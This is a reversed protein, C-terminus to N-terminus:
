TKRRLRSRVRRRLAIGGAGFVGSGLLILSVPEPTEFTYTVHRVLYLGTNPNFEVTVDVIGSGVLGFTIPCAIGGACVSGTFTFPAFLHLEGALATSPTLVSAIISLNALASHTVGDLTATGHVDNGAGAFNLNLLQGPFAFRAPNIPNSTGPTANSILNLVVSGDANQLNTWNFQGLSDVDSGSGSTIVVTDAAVPSFSAALLFATLLLKTM